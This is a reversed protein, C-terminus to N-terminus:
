EACACSCLLSASIALKCKPPSCRDLLSLMVKPVFGPSDLGTTGGLYPNTFFRDHKQVVGNTNQPPTEAGTYLMLHYSCCDCTGASALHTHCLDRRALSAQEPRWALCTHHEFMTYLAHLILEMAHLVQCGCTSCSSNCLDIPHMASILAHCFPHVVISIHRAASCFSLLWTPQVCSHRINAKHLLCLLM